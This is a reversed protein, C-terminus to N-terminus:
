TSSSQFTKIQSKCPWTRVNKFPKYEISGTRVLCSGQLLSLLCWWWQNLSNRINPYYLNLREKRRLKSHAWVEQTSHTQNMTKRKDMTKIHQFSRIMQSLCISNQRRLQPPLLLHPQLRVWPLTVHHVLGLRHLKLGLTLSPWNKICQWQNQHHYTKSSVEIKYTHHCELEVLLKLELWRLQPNGDVKDRHLISHRLAEQWLHMLMVKSSDSVSMLIQSHLM